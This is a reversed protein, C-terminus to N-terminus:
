SSLEWLYASLFIVWCNLIQNFPKIKIGKLQCSFIKFSIFINSITKSILIINLKLIYSLSEYKLIIQKNIM